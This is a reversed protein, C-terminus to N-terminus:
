IPKNSPLINEKIGKFENTKGLIRIIQIILYLIGLLVLCNQIYAIAANEKYIRFFTVSLNTNQSNQLLESRLSKNTNELTVIANNFDNISTQFESYCGLIDSATQNCVNDDGNECSKLNNMVTKLNSWAPSDIKNYIDSLSLSSITESPFDNVSPLSSYPCTQSPQPKSSSSSSSSTTTVPTTDSSPGMLTGTSPTIM